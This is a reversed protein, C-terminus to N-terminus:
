TTTCVPLRPIFCSSSIQVPLFCPNPSVHPYPRPACSPTPLSCMIIAVEEPAATRELQMVPALRQVLALLQETDAAHVRELLCCLARLAAEAGRDSAMAPM